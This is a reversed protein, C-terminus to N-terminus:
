ELKELAAPSLGPRRLDNELVAHPGAAAPPASSSSKRRATSSTEGESQGALGNGFDSGYCGIAIVGTSSCDVIKGSNLGALAGVDTFYSSANRILMVDNLSLGNVQGTRGIMGFLGFYNGPTSADVSIRLNDIAYKNGNFSGTFATDQFGTANNVDPAMLATAYTRGTMDLNAQLVHGNGDLTGAFSAIVPHAWETGALDIDAVLRYCMGAGSPGVADLALLQEATAIQYPDDPTGAGGAFEPGSAAVCLGLTGVIGWLLIAGCHGRTRTM